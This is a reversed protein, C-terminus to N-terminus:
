ASSGAPALLDVDQGFAPLPLHGASAAEVGVLPLVMQRARNFVQETHADIEPRRRREGVTELPGFAERGDLVFRETNGEFYTGEAQMREAADRFMRGFNGMASLVLDRRRLLSRVASLKLHEDRAYADFWLNYYCACDYFVKARFLEFSGLTRYQDVYLQMTADFRLHMYRDYADVREALAEGGLDRAVLDAVLDNELAIFDSGPSYFPDTFAAADGVVAWREESFFRRTRFALQTFLLHDLLEVGELLDSVARHTRLHALFGEPTHLAKSWGSAETVVGVSTAGERLPILWIWYGPYCFHNTSLGRATYRARARWPEPRGVDDMDGLGRVRGWAAGVRHTREPVRLDRARAVLGERGSADVVWRARVPTEGGDEVVTFTHERGDDALRLDRVRAGLRVDVGDRANMACLDRELRARDLQFSPYPPLGRLGIESMRELPADKAETDFFFRLGNKPLHREYLYGGLGLRRTLYNAAIEVTSEGVKWGGEREREYLAVSAEPLAHRLQRALLNGALGGGIIAVDLNKRM